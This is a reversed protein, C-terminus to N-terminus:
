HDHIWAGSRGKENFSVELARSQCEVVIDSLRISDNMRQTLDQRGDIPPHHEETTDPRGEAPLYVTHGSVM